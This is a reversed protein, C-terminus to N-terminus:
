FIYEVFVDSIYISVVTFVIMFVASVCMCVKAVQEFKRTKDVIVGAIGAGIIGFVIILAACVGVFTDNYGYPCLIQQLLTTICTFLGVGTGASIALLWFMKNKLLQLLIFSKM